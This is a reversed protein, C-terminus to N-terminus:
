DDTRGVPAGMWNIAFPSDTNRLLPADPVPLAPAQKLGAMQASAQRVLDVVEMEQNDKGEVPFGPLHYSYHGTYEKHWYSCGDH